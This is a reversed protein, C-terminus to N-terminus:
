GATKIWELSKEGDVFGLIEVRDLYSNKKAWQCIKKAAELEGESVRTSCIEIRDVKLGLFLTKAIALKEEPNFSVGKMQEGDRLTTDLIEIHPM